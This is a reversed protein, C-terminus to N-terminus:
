DSELWAREASVMEVEPFSWVYRDVEDIVEQAHGHSSAVVAFGLVARQWSDQRGVEASSVGFRRRSGELIPKIVQRKDKLSRAGAIRLDIEVALVHV